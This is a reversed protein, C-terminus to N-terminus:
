EHRGLKQYSVSLQQFSPEGRWLLLDDVGQGEDRGDSRGAWRYPLRPPPVSLRFLPPSIGVVFSPSRYSSSPRTSFLVCDPQRSSVAVASRYILPNGSRAALRSATHRWPYDHMKGMAYTNARFSCSVVNIFLYTAEVIM